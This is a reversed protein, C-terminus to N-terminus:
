SRLWANLGPAEPLAGNLGHFVERLIRQGRQEEPLSAASGIADRYIKTFNFPQDRVTKLWYASIFPLVVQSYLTMPPKFQGYLDFAIHSHLHAVYLLRTEPRVSSAVRAISALFPQASEALENGVTALTQGDTPNAFGEDFLEAAKLWLDPEAATNAITRLAAIVDNALSMARTGDTLGVTALRIAVPLAGILLSHREADLRAQSSRTGLIEAPDCPPFKLLAEDGKDKRIRMAAAGALAVELALDVAEPYRDASVIDALSQYGILTVTLIEKGERAANLARASFSAAAAHDGARSAYMAIQGILAPVRRADFDAALELNPSALYRAKPKAIEEGEINRDPPSGTTAIAALYTCAHGYAVFAAKWADSSDIRCRLLCELSESLPKFAALVGTNQWTVVALVGLAKVLTLTEVGDGRRGLTVAETAAAIAETGEAISALFMLATVREDSAVNDVYAAAKRLWLLAERDRKVYMFQRGLSELILFQVQRQQPYAALTVEGVSVASELDKQKEALVVIQGRVAAAELLGANWDRAQRAADKLGDLLDDWHQEAADEEKMWLRDIMRTSAVEAIEHAFLTKRQSATLCNVSAEWEKLQAVSKVEIAIPWLLLEIAFADPPLKKLSLHNIAMPAAELALRLYRCAFLVDTDVAAESTAAAAGVIAWSDANSAQRSLSDLDQLLWSIPKRLRHHLRIQNGRVLIRLGLDVEVPMPADVWVASIISDGYPPDFDAFAHLAQYLTLAARNFEKAAILHIIVSDGDSPRIERKSLIRNALELHCLRQTAGPVDDYRLIHFLGSVRMCDADEQQVCVGLLDELHENPNAIPPPVAALAAVQQRGFTGLVINLRYLLQRTDPDLFEDKLRRVIDGRIEESYEHQFLARVGDPGLVWNRRAIFRVAALLLEPNGGTSNTLYRIFRTNLFSKPAGYANLVELTESNKFRPVSAVAIDNGVAEIIRSPIPRVGTTILHCNKARCMQVLAQLRQPLNGVSQSLPLDDIILLGKAGLAEGLAVYAAPWETAAAAPDYRRAVADLRMVAEHETLSAMPVWIAHGGLQEAVLKVLETKGSGATGHVSLWPHSELSKIFHKVVRVRKSRKLLPLPVAVPPTVVSYAIAATIGQDHALEKLRATVQAPLDDITRKLSDMTDELGALKANITQLTAADDGSLPPLVLNHMLDAKTLQKLGPEALL